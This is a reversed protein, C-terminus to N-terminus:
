RRKGDDATQGRDDGRPREIQFAYKVTTPPDSDYTRELLTARDLLDILLVTSSRTGYLPSEIFMPSLMRERELGVGTDPLEEDRALTRDALLDLIEEPDFPREGSLLPRLAEKGRRVKPWPTDLLRNSLGYLGPPLLRPGDGRNSFWCHRERDGLFLNFGNYLAAKRSLTECYAEPGDKGLLFDTTLKGRSPAGEKHSAPDRYNTVAAIKGGRNVGLWTGGGQLDRGALLDPAEKWFGAPATPRNYFEDRNAALILKYRPHVKIAALLLCM